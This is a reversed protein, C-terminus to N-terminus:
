TRSPPEACVKGFVVENVGLSAGRLRIIGLLGPRDTRRALSLRLQAALKLLFFSRTMRYNFNVDTPITILNQFNQGEM